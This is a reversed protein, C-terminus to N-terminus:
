PSSEVFEETVYVKGHVRAPWNEWGGSSPMMSIDAEDGWRLVPPIDVFSGPTSSTLSAHEEPSVFSPPETLPSIM